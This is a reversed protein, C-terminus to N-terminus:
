ILLYMLEGDFPFEVRPARDFYSSSWRVGCICAIASCYLLCCFALGDYHFIKGVTGLQYLQYDIFLYIFVTGASQPCALLWVHISFWVTRYYQITPIMCFQAKGALCIVRFGAEIGKM